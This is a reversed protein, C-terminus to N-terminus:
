GRLGYERDLEAFVEHAPRTRGAAADALGRRIGERAEAEERLNEEALREAVINQVLDAVGLGRAEAKAALEAEIEPQLQLEIM